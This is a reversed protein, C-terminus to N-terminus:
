SHEAYVDDVSKVTFCVVFNDFAFNLAFRPIKLDTSLESYTFLHHNNEKYKWRRLHAHM